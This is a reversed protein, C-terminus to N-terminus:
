SNRKLDGALSGVVGLPVMETKPTPESTFLGASQM